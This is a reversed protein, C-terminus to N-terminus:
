PATMGLQGFALTTQERDRNRSIDLLNFSARITRNPKM